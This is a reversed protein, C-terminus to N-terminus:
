NNRGSLKFELEVVRKIGKPSVFVGDGSRVLKGEELLKEYQDLIQEDTILSALHPPSRHELLKRVAKLLEARDDKM